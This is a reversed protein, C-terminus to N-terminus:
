LQETLIYLLKELQAFKNLPLKDPRDYINHYEKYQGRTYIFIAPVNALTFPYHDSNPANPRIGIDPLLNYKENINKIKEVIAPYEKGNVITIGQDGSGVMDLNVLLKIKNLDFVPHEVFYMSGLLGMEEGSFLIFAVNYKPPTKRNAFRHALDLVMATGSANDNAGPFYVQGLVGLHDYHATFVVFSDIRGPVYGIINQTTFQQEHSNVSLSIISADKPFADRKIFVLAYDKQHEFPKYYFIRDTLIVIGAAQMRNLLFAKLIQRYSKKNQKIKQYDVVLFVGNLNRHALRKWYKPNNVYLLKFSKHLTPCNGWIIYDKGLSLKKNDIILQITDTICNKSLNFYQFYSGNFPKVHFQKFLSVIYQAALKDSGTCYARGHLYPSGLSDIVKRAFKLNQGFTLTSLSILLFLLIRRM